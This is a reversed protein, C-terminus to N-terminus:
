KCTPHDEYTHNNPISYGREIQNIYLPYVILHYQYSFSLCLCGNFPQYWIWSVECVDFSDCGSNIGDSDFDLGIDNSVRNNFHADCCDGLSAYTMVTDEATDMDVEQNTCLRQNSDYHWVMNDNCRAPSITPTVITTDDRQTLGGRDEDGEAMAPEQFLLISMAATGTTSLDSSKSSKTSLSVKGSKSPPPPITTTIGTTFPTAATTSSM